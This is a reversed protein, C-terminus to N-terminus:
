DLIELHYDSLHSQQLDHEDHSCQIFVSREIGIDELISSSPKTIGGVKKNLAPNTFSEACSRPIVSLTRVFIQRM